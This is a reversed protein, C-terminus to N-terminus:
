DVASANNILLNFNGVVQNYFSYYISYENTINNLTKLYIINSKSSFDVDVISENENSEYISNSELFLNKDDFYYIENGIILPKINGNEITTTDIINLNYDLNYIKSKLDNFNSFVIQTQNLSIDSLNELDLEYTKSVNISNQINKLVITKNDTKWYSFVNSFLNLKSKKVNNDIFEVNNNLDSKYLTLDSSLILFSNADRNLFVKEVEIGTVNEFVLKKNLSYNEIVFISDNNFILSNDINNSKGLDLSSSVERLKFNEYEFRFILSRNDQSKSQYFIYNSKDNGPGNDECPNCSIILLLLFLKKLNTFSMYLMFVYFHFVDCM